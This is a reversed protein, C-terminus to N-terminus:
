CLGGHLDADGKRGPRLLFHPITLYERHDEAVVLMRGDHWWM